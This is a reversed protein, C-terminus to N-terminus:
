LLRLQVQGSRAQPNLWVSEVRAQERAASGAGLIGTLRTRGAAHAHTPFDLRCWGADELQRYLPNAYGSLICKGQVTLLLSVLDEHDEATLDFRYKGRRRTSPHYPPDVYFCASPDDFRPIVKRFCDAEIQVRMWRRHIDPLSEVGTLWKATSNAMGRSSEGRSYSWGGHLHDGSFGQRAIVYFAVAREMPDTSVNLTARAWSFEARSHPLFTVSRQFQEFLVPDRLVRFFDTVLLDVDNYIECASPLKAHLLAAGGGFVEVYTTHPPLLPLLHRVMHGKGGFWTIPSVSEM